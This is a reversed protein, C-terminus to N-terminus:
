KEEECTLVITKKNWLKLIKIDFKKINYKNVFDIISKRIEELDHEKEM